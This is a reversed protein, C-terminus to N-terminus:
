VNWVNAAKVGRAVDVRQGCDDDSLPTRLSAVGGCAMARARCGYARSPVRSAISDDGLCASVVPTAACGNSAVAPGADIVSTIGRGSACDGSVSCVPRWVQSSFCGQVHDELVVAAASDSRGETETRCLGSWPQLVSGQPRQVQQEECSKKAAEYETVARSVDGRLEYISGLLSRMNFLHKDDPTAFSIGQQLVQEAQAPFMLRSYLDALTVYYQTQDPRTQLAKTWNQLAGAEDDMHIQVWALEGYAEAYNPDIQIATM